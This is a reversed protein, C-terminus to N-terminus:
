WWFGPGSSTAREDMDFFRRWQVHGDLMGLNGGAPVLGNLHPSIHPVAYGGQVTNFNYRVGAVFGAHNDTPSSSITADAALVRQSASPAPLYVSGSLIRQPTLTANQNTAMLQTGPLTILYGSVHVNGPAYYEWLRENDDDSFRPSTGPCYLKQSPVYQTISNGANWSLDWAWNGGSSVPLKDNNEGGFMHLALCVQKLNSTCQVIRTEGKTGALAPLAVVALLAVTALVVALDTLTFAACHGKRTERLFNARNTKM